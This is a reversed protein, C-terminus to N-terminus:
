WHLYREHSELRDSCTLVHSRGTCEGKQLRVTQQIVQPGLQGLGLESLEKNHCDTHHRRQHKGCNHEESIRAVHRRPTAAEVWEPVGSVGLNVNRDYRTHALM